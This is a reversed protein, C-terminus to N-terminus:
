STMRFSGLYARDTVFRSISYALFPHLQPPSLETFGKSYTPSWQRTSFPNRSTRGHTAVCIDFSHLSRVESSDRYRSDVNPIVTRRIRYCGM